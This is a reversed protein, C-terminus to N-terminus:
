IYDERCPTFVDIVLSEALASAQHELGGRVVFSDGARADFTTEGVTVRLHGSVIYVIQEHPHSHRAGVWDKEMRHEALFLKDNYAGVRRVLGPEPTKTAAEASSVLVFDPYRHDTM